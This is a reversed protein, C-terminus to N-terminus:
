LMFWRIRANSCIGAGIATSSLHTPSFGHRNFVMSANNGNNARQLLCAGAAREPAVAYPWCPKKVALMASGTTECPAARLRRSVGDAGAPGPIASPNPGGALEASPGVKVVHRPDLSVEHSRFELMGRCQAEAGPATREARDAFRGPDAVVMVTGADHGSYCVVSRAVQCKESEFNGQEEEVVLQASDRVSSATFGRQPGIEGQGVVPTSGLQEEYIGSVELEARCKCRNDACTRERLPMEVLCAGKSQTSVIDGPVEEVKRSKSHVQREERFVDPTGRERLELSKRVSESCRNEGAVKAGGCEQLQKTAPSLLSGKDAVAEKRAHEQLTPGKRQKERFGESSSKEARSFTLPEDLAVSSVQDAESLSDVAAESVFAEKTITKPGQQADGVGPADKEVKECAREENLLKWARGSLLCDTRETLQDTLACLVPVVAQVDAQISGERSMALPVIALKAQVRERFASTLNVTGHPRAVDPPIASGVGDSKATINDPRAVGASRSEVEKRKTHKLASNAGQAEEFTRLLEAIEPANM